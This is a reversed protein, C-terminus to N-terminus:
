TETWTSASSHTDRGLLRELLCTRWRNEPPAIESGVGFLVSPNELMLLLKVLFHFGVFVRFSFRESRSNKSQACARVAFLVRPSKSVVHPQLIMLFHPISGYRSPITLSRASFLIRPSKSVVIISTQKRLLPRTSSFTSWGGKTIVTRIYSIDTYLVVIV